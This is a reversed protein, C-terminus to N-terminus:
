LINILPVIYKGEFKEIFDIRIFDYAIQLSAFIGDKKYVCMTYFLNNEFAYKAWEEASTFYKKQEKNPKSDLWIDIINQLTDEESMVEQMLENFQLFEIRYM